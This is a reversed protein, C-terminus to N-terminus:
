DSNNDLNKLELIEITEEETILNFTGVDNKKLFVSNEMNSENELNAQIMDRKTDICQIQYSDAKIRIFGIGMYDKCYEYVDDFLVESMDPNRIEAM